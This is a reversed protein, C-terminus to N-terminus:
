LNIYNVIRIIITLGCNGPQKYIWIVGTETPERSGERIEYM